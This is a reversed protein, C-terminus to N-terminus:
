TDLGLRRRLETPHVGEFQVLKTRTRVGAKIEIKSKALGTLEALYEVLATNAKGAVAPARIKIRIEDSVEGVVSNHSSNPTVRLRLITVM